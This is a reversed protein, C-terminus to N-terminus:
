NKTTKPHQGTSQTVDWNDDFSDNIVMNYPERDPKPNSKRKKIRRNRPHHNANLDPTAGTQYTM